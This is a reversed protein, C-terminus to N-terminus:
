MPAENFEGAYLIVEHGLGKMMAAFKRVKETFACSSFAETTNTHPLSVLHFRIM